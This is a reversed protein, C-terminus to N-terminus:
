ESASKGNKELVPRLVGAVIGALGLPLAIFADGRWVAIGALTLLLLSTLIAGYIKKRENILINTVKRDEVQLNKESLDLTKEAMTLIREPADPIVEQYRKLDEPPPLPGSFFKSQVSVQGKIELLERIQERRQDAPLSDIRAAVLNQHQEISNPGSTNGATEPDAM